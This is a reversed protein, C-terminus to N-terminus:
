FFKDVILNVVIPQAKTDLFTLCIIQNEAFTSVTIDKFEPCGIYILSFYRINSFKICISVIHFRCIFLENSHKDRLLLLLLTYAFQFFASLFLITFIM